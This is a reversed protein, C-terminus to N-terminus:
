CREPGALLATLIMLCVFHRKSQEPLTSILWLTSHQAAHSSSQVVSVKSMLKSLDEFMNSCYFDCDYNLYLETVLGPIHWLQVITEISLEKVEYPLKPNESSILEMSKKLFQQLVYFSQV